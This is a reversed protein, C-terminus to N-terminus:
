TERMIDDTPYPSDAVILRRRDLSLRDGQDQGALFQGTHNYRIEIVARSRGMERM